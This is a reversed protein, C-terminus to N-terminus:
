IRLSAAIIGLWAHLLMVLILECGTLSCDESQCIDMAASLPIHHFSQSDRMESHMQVNFGPAKYMWSIHKSFFVNALM